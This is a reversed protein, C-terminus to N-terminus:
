LAVPVRIYITHSIFGLYHDVILTINTFSEAVKASKWPISTVERERHKLHFSAGGLERETRPEYLVGSTVEDSSCIV